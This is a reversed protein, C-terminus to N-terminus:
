LISPIYKGKHKTYTISFEFAGYGNSTSKLSSTNIDYSFRFIYEGFTIGTHIQFADQLRYYPGIFFGSKLKDPEYNFLLGFVYEDVNGERQYLLSPYLHYFDHLKIRAGGYGSYRMPLRSEKTIFELKPRTLHFISLGVFPNLWHNPDSKYYYLGYNVEPILVSFNNFSERGDISSNFGSPSNKDYQNNVTFEKNVSNQIIGVQVGTALHHIHRYDQTIEYSGSLTANLVNYGASGAKTNLVNVGYGFRKVSKDFAANMTIFPDNLFAGWQQRYHLHGRYYGDFQGAMAPNLNLHSAYYMSLHSDQAFLVNAGLLLMVIAIHKFIRIM